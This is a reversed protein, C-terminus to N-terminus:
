AMFRVGLKCMLYFILFYLLLLFKLDHTFIVVRTDISLRMYKTGLKDWTMFFYSPQLLKIALMFNNHVLTFIVIELKWIGYLLHPAISCNYDICECYWWNTFPVWFWIAGYCLFSLFNSFSVGFLLWSCIGWGACYYVFPGEFGSEEEPLTSSFFNLVGMFLVCVIVLVWSPFMIWNLLLFFTWFKIHSFFIIIIIFPLSVLLFYLPMSLLSWSSIHPDRTKGGYLLREKLNRVHVCIWFCFLFLFSPKTQDFNVFLFVYQM